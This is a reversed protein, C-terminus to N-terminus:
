GKKPGRTRKKLRPFSSRALLVEEWPHWRNRVQGVLYVSGTVLVLDEEGAEALAAAIAEGPSDVALVREAYRGCVAALHPVDATKKGYLLPHTAVIVRPRVPLLQLLADAEREGSLGFVLVLPRQTLDLSGVLAEMKQPNHAVDLVVHPRKQVSELRGPFRAHVLGRAVAEASVPVGHTDVLVDVALAAIAMNRLRYSRTPGVWPVEVDGILPLHLVALPGLVTKRIAVVDQPILPYLPCGCRRAEERFVDFVAPNFVAVGAAAGALIGAKHWAISKLDHGLSEVHDLGIDTIVALRRELGQVLDFRGGMGTEVVAWDLREKRFVEYSVALSAMGHVSAPCDERARFGEAVPRVRNCADAFEVPDAYVGDVASKETAVQLYPSVHLGTRYGAAALICSIYHAVSGKGSTGAVQISPFRRQPNGLRDNFELVTRVKGEPDKARPTLRVIEKDLYDVAALYAQVRPDSHPDPGRDM